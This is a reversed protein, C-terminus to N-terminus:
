QYFCVNDKNIILKAKKGLIIPRNDKVHGAPFDFCVPFQYKQIIKSILEYVTGGMTPDEEFDSFQGIILGSISKFVGSLEFNRIMRDIQYPREGIDEIFLIKGKAFKLIDYPTARLGYLVALNGGILTGSVEGLRNLKHGRINYEITKNQIIQKLSQIAISDEPLEVIHKAMISHVSSLKQISFLSHLVTIDSFGLLIKPHKKFKELSIKDILQVM